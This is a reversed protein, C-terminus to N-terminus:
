SAALRTAERLLLSRHEAATEVPDTGRTAEMTVLGDYGREALVALAEGFPVLGTGFRVNAGSSDKDKAHVHAVRAGLFALEAPSDFGAATANGLDYCLAVRPRGVEDLFAASEDAAVGLELAVLVGTHSVEAALARVADASRGRDATVLDSAELLPVVLVAIGLEDIVAALRRGLDGADCGDGLV